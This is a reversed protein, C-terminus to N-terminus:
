EDEVVEKNHIVIRDYLCRYTGDRRPLYFRVGGQVYSGKEAIENMNRGLNRSSGVIEFQEPNYKQLFTIPVGMKGSYDCPIAVTKPVEIADYNVYTPNRDPDYEATLIMKDHRYSVDLNTFWCCCRPLNDNKPIVTGDPRKFGQLHYHYGLWMENNRIREFCDKYTIANQPGIVLFQMDNEFLTAIFERFQSFPPNTIVLDYKSYDIDQFRVGNGTAPNYGSVAISAIGYDEAHAVLFKVFNCNIIDISREIRDKSGDADVHKVTCGRAFLDSAAVTEENAYVLVEDISEDWDCPCLIRKDRLQAKYNPVEAAIDEYLTFFEDDVGNRSCTMSKSDNPM